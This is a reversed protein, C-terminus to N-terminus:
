MGITQHGPTVQRKTCCFLLWDSLHGSLRLSEKYCGNHSEPAVALVLVPYFLEVVVVPVHPAVVVLPAVKVVPDSRRSAM